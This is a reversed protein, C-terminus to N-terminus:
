LDNREIDTGHVALLINKQCELQQNMNEEIPFLYYQLRARIRESVKLTSDHQTDYMKHYLDRLKQNYQKNLADVELIISDVRSQATIEQPICMGAGVFLFYYLILFSSKHKKM